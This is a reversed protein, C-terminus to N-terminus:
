KYNMYATSYTVFAEIAQICTIIIAVVTQGMGSGYSGALHTQNIPTLAVISSSCTPAIPKM